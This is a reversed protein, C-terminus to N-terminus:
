KNLPVLNNFQSAKHSKWQPFHCTLPVVTLLRTACIPKPFRNIHYSSSLHVDSSPFKRKKKKQSVVALSILVWKRKGHPLSRFSIHLIKVM